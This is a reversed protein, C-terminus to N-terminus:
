PFRQQIVNRSKHEHCIEKFRKQALDLDKKATRRSKKVFVHLVHVKDGISVVYVVRYARDINVRIERVSPGITKM